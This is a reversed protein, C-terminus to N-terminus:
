QPPAAASNVPGVSDLRLPTERVASETGSFVARAFRARPIHPTIWMVIETKKNEHHNNNAIHRLDHLTNINVPDSIPVRIREHSLRDLPRCRYRSQALHQSKM